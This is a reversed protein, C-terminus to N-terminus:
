LYQLILHGKSISFIRYIWLRAPKMNLYIACNKIKRFIIDVALLPTYHM